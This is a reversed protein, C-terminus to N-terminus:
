SFFFRFEVIYCIFPFHFVPGVIPPRIGFDGGAIAVPGFSAWRLGSGDSTDVFNPGRSANRPALEQKVVM